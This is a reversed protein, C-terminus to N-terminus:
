SAYLISWLAASVPRFDASELKRRLSQESKICEIFHYKTSFFFLTHEYYCINNNTFSSTILILEKGNYYAKADIPDSYSFTM